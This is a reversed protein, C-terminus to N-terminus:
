GLTGPALVSFVCLGGAIVLAILTYRISVPSRELGTPIRKAHIMRFM